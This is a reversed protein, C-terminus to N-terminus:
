VILYQPRSESIPISSPFGCWAVLWGKPSAYFDIDDFRRLPSTFRDSRFIYLKQWRRPMNQWRMPMSMMVNRCFFSSYTKKRTRDGHTSSVSSNCRSNWTVLHNWTKRVGFSSFIIWNSPQTNQLLPQHKKCTVSVFLFDKVFRFSIRIGFVGSADACIFRFCRDKILLRSVVSGSNLFSTLSPLFCSWIQLAKFVCLCVGGFNLMAGSFFHNSSWKGIPARYSKMQMQQQSRSPLCGFCKSSGVLWGVLWGTCCLFFVPHVQVLQAPFDCFNWFIVLSGWFQTSIARSPLPIAVLLRTRSTIGLRLPVCHLSVWVM